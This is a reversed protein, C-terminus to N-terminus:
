VSREASGFRQPDALLDRFIAMIAREADGTEAAKGSLIVELAVGLVIADRDQPLADEVTVAARLENVSVGDRTSAARVTNLDGSGWPKEEWSDSERADVVNQGRKAGRETPAFWCVDGPHDPFGPWSLWRRAVEVVIQAGTGLMPEFGDDGLNGPIVLESLIGTSIVGIAVTRRDTPSQVLNAADGSVWAPYVWDDTLVGLLLDLLSEDGPAKTVQHASEM